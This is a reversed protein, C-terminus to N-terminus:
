WRFFPRTDVKKDAAELELGFLLGMNRMFVDSAEM